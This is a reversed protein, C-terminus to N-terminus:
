IRDDACWARAYYYLFSLFLFAVVPLSSLARLAWVGLRFMLMMLMM